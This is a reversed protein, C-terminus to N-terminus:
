TICVIANITGAEREHREGEGPQHDHALLKASHVSAVLPSHQEMLATTPPLKKSRTDARQVAYEHKVLRLARAEGLQVM